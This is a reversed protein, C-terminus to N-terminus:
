NEVNEQYDTINNFYAQRQQLLSHGTINLENNKKMKRMKMKRMKMKRM